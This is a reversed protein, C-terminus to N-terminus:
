GLPLRKLEKLILRCYYGPLLVSVITFKLMYILFIVVWELREQAHFHFAFSFSNIVVVCPPSLLSICFHIYFFVFPYRDEDTRNLMAMLSVLHLSLRIFLNICIYMFWLICFLYIFCESLLYRAFNYKKCSFLLPSIEISCVTTDFSIIKM